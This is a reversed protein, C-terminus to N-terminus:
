IGLSSKGVFVKIFVGSDWKTILDGSGGISQNYDPYIAYIDIYVWFGNEDDYGAIYINNTDVVISQPIDVRNSPNTTIIGDGDFSTILQGTTKDRKEIRWQYDGLVKDSGAVYIYNSDM